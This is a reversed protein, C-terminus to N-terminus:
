RLFAILSEILLIVLLYYNLHKNEIGSQKSWKTGLGTFQNKKEFEEIKKKQGRFTSSLTNIEM